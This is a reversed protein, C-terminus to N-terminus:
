DPNATSLDELFESLARAFVGPRESHPLLGTGEFVDLRARPMRDLWLHASEVPASSLRGWGIWTPVDIEEVVDRVDLELRGALLAALARQAGPQNAAAHYQKRARADVRERTAFVEDQLHRAIGGRTTWWWLALGALWPLRLLVRVLRDGPRPPGQGASLGRPAVLGLARVLAPAEAAVQVAYAATRGVGVVVAPARVVDALFDHVFDVLIRADLQGTVRASRGFGPLDPVVIRHDEGLSVAVRSWEEGHHGPGLSHLLVVPTGSGVTEFVIEQGRWVTSQDRGWRPPTLRPTRKRRFLYLLAPAGVAVAGLALAGWLTKRQAAEQEERASRATM